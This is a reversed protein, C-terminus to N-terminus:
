SHHSNPSRTDLIFSLSRVEEATKIQPDIPTPKPKAAVPAAEGDAAAAAPPTAASVPQRAKMRELQMTRMKIRQDQMKLM